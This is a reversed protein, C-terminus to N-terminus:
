TLGEPEYEWSENLTYNRTNPNWQETFSKCYGNSPRYQESVEEGNPKGYGRMMVVDVGITLKATETTQMNQIIPGQLRGIIPIVAIVDVFGTRNTYNLSVVESAAGVILVTRTDYSRSLSVTGGSKNHTLSNSIFAPNLVEIGGSDKYAQDVLSFVLGEFVGYASLANDYKTTSKSNSYGTELGTFTASISMTEEQSSADLESSIEIEHTAFFTEQSLVWTDTVSYSGAAVDHSINRTHNYARYPITADPGLDYGLEDAELPKNMDVPLFRSRFFQDDGMMDQFVEVTPDYVLRSEVWQAAQRFAEGDQELKGVVETSYKKIGTAGVTHTLSYTKLINGTAENDELHMQGENEQLEWNEEASSLRYTAQAVEIAGLNDTTSVEEYADFVFSFDRYQVGLEEETQEPLDVSVLRADRFVIENSKGGYPAITLKGANQSPFQSRLFHLAIIAEGQIKNQREGAETIDQDPEESKILAKGSINITFKSGIYTGDGTTTNERSISYKPFPGVFGGEVDGPDLPSNAGFLTPDSGGGILLKKPNAEIHQEFIIM